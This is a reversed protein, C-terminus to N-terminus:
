PKVGPHFICQLKHTKHEARQTCVSIHVCEREKDERESARRCTVCIKRVPGSQMRQLHVPDLSQPNLSPRLRVGCSDSLPPNTLKPRPDSIGQGFISGLM